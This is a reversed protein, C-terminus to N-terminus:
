EEEKPCVNELSSRFHGIEDEWIEGKFNWKVKKDKEKSLAAIKEAQLHTDNNKTDQSVTQFRLHEGAGSYVEYQLLENQDLLEKLESKLSIMRNKLAQGAKERHTQKETDIRKFAIERIPKINERSNKISQQQFKFSQTKKAILAEQEKLVAQNKKPDGLAQKILALEKNLDAQKQILDKERQILKLTVQNFQTIEDELKNIEKQISVFSPHRALELIFSRPLGDVEKLEPNKLWTKITSYYDINKEFKTTYADLRGYYPAYKRGLATLVQLSDGFQCLNMYSITRVVYSEPNYANKFFDTHLSFMNGAAGVYDKVLIQTWAQEVMAQLWLPHDKDVQLYLESAEKYMQKQFYIRALTLSALTKLKGLNIKSVLLEELLGRADDVKAQRYSSIAKIFKAEWFYESKETIFGLAEEVIDLKGAELFYKARYFNYKDKYSLDFDEKSTYPDIEQIDAIELKDIGETLADLTEKKLESNKSNKLIKLMSEKFESLLNLKFAAIGYFYYAELSFEKDKLLEAFIALAMENNKISELYIQGELLRYQQDKFVILDKTQLQSDNIKAQYTDSLPDVKPILTLTKQSAFPKAASAETLNWKKKDIEIMKPSPLKNIQASVKPKEPILLEKPEYQLSAELGIDLRPTDKKKQFDYAPVKSQKLKLNRGPMKAESNKIFQSWSPHYFLLIIFVLNITKM